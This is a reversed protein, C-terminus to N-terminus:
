GRLQALRAMIAPDEKLEALPGLQSEVYDWDLHGRM